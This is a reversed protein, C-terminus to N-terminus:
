ETGQRAAPSRGASGRGYAAGHRDGGTAGSRVGRRRCQRLDASNATVKTLIVDANFLSNMEMADAAEALQKSSRGAANGMSTIAAEVQAVAQAQEKAGTTAAAAAALLPLSFGMTMMKGVSAMKGGFAEIDKQVRKVQKSASEVGKTFEASDLGLTVRLAGILSKGAMPRRGM